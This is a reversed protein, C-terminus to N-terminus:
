AIIVDNIIFKVNGKEMVFDFPYLTTNQKYSFTILNEELSFDKGLNPNSAGAFFSM